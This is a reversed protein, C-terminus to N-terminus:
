RGCVSCETYGEAIAESETMSVVSKSRKLTRCNPDLHYKKGKGSATVYVTRDQAAPAAAEPAPQEQQAPAADQTSSSSEEKKKEEAKTGAVVTGDHAPTAAVDLGDSTVTITGQAGTGYITAGSATLADLVAQTPHGYSNDLGYSIVAIKPTLATLLAGSTGTDSGHHAVKLVDIDGCNAKLLDDKTADGTFLFSTKGYTVKIVASYDNTDDFSAGANPWLIDISYNDGTAITKGRAAADISLGKDAVAQLFRTYTETDHNCDPAWVSGVSNASIVTPLGGIHDADPHTAVLWDIRTRGDASLVANMAAGTTSDKGADIVMTKGDPFEVITGDGQGVDVFRVTLTDLKQPESVTQTAAATEQKSDSEKSSSDESSSAEQERAPPAQPQEQVTQPKATAATWVLGITFLCMFASVAIDLARHGGKRTILKHLGFWIGLCILLCLAVTGATPSICGLVILLVVGLVIQAKRSGKLKNWLNEMPM